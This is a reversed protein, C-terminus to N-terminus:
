KGKTPRIRGSHQEIAERLRFRANREGEGYILPIQIDFIGLLAYAKDEPHKTQRNEMWSMREIDTYECLPTGRFASIPIGTIDHLLPELSKKDGIRQGESSFFEVSSPALLEQLTWGRTAWRTKRFASKWTEEPLTDMSVDPLYVYCKSANQYWCFMSNIAYQLETSNSKDICCTDIWLYGLGDSSAQKVCFQIKQYGDKDKGRGKKIDKYNVEQEDDAWTHSLIAYPPIDSILDRTFALSYSNHELKLLRM